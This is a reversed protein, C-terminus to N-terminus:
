VLWSAWSLDAISHEEQIHHDLNFTQEPSFCSVTPIQFGPYSM